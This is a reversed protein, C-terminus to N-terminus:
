AREGGLLWPKRLFKFRSISKLMLRSATVGMLFNFVIGAFLTFGFSYISGTTSAPFLFLVPKLITAWFGSPPGFVGMLVIAVILVTINGDFIASFSNSSGREIASDITRGARIEEKIREATIINADVGMGISLIIGAIGPLTLTFSPIFSFYGSVAALSGAVQGVLSIVAIFGPLRYYLLIFLSVIAFAIIGGLVMIDLSKTGLTPDIVGNSKVEISFPLAGSNILNATKAADAYDKFGGSITAVGDTIHAEVKPDSLLQDDLWISITGSKYQKQTADAFNQRGSEKLKLEVVPINIGNDPQFGAKASEVDKGTLVLDGTPKGSEDTEGGIHFQLQATKGLEEIAANPDFDTQSAKWPFRVIVQNNIMDAYIEYDTIKNGVLRQAIVDKIGNMQDETVNEVDKEPGFTVDVGGKIDIGLRIDSAGRIYTDRRDGFHGYVGVITTYGLALILLAVIFFTSKRARKM